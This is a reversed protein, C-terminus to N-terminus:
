DWVLAYGRIFLIEDAGKTFDLQLEFDSGANPLYNYKDVTIPNWTSQDLKISGTVSTALATSGHDDHGCFYIVM